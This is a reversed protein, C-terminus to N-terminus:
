ESSLRRKKFLSKDVKTLSENEMLVKAINELVEDAVDSLKLKGSALGKERYDRESSFKLLFDHFEKYSGLPDGAKFLYLDHHALWFRYPSSEEPKSFDLCDSIFYTFIRHRKDLFTGHDYEISRRILDNRDDFSLQPFYDKGKNKVISYETELFKEIAEEGGKFRIDDPEMRIEPHFFNLAFPFHTSITLGTGDGLTQERKNKKYSDYFGKDIFLDEISLGLGLHDIAMQYIKETKDFIADAYATIM